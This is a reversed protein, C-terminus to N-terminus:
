KQSHIGAYLLLKFEGSTIAIANTFGSRLDTLTANQDYLRIVKNKMIREPKSDNKKMSVAIPVPTSYPIYFLHIGEENKLLEHVGHSEIIFYKNKKDYEFSLNLEQLLGSYIKKLYKIEIGGRGQIYSKFDLIIKDTVGKLFGYSSIELFSVDLFNEIFETQLSDFQAASYQYSEKVEKLADMQFVRDKANSRM